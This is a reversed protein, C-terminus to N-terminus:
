AIGYLAIHSNPGFGAYTQVFISSIPANSRWVGSNIHISGSGNFEYGGFQRTTKFKLNDSYDLIDITYVGFMNATATSHPIAQGEITGANAANGSTVTSGNGILVHYTYNAGSDSNMNFYVPPTTSSSAARGTIRIQLHKYHQPINGFFANFGGSSSTTTAISAYANASTVAASATSESTGIANIAKATFTTATGVTVPTVVPTKSSYTTVSDSGTVAYIQAADTASIAFDVAVFGARDTVSTISPTTPLNGNYKSALGYLTITTNQLWTGSNVLLTLSTVPAPSRYLCSSHSILYNTASANAAYSSASMQKTNGSSYGGIICELVGFTNATATAGSIYGLMVAGSAGYSNKTTTVSSGQAFQVQDSYLQSTDGNIRIFAADYYDVAAGRASIVIKLDQYGQPINNFTVSSVGGVGITQTYIPQMFVSM